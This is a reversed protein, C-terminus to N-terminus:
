GEEEIEERGRGEMVYIKGNEKQRLCFAIKMRMIGM